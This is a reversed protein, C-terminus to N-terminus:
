CLAAPLRLLLGLSPGVNEGVADYMGLTIGVAVGAVCVSEGVRLLVLNILLSLKGLLAGLPLVGVIPGLSPAGCDGVSDGLGMTIGVAVGVILKSGLLLSCALANCLSKGVIGVRVEVGLMEVCALEDDGVFIGVTLLLGLLPSVCGDLKNDFGITIVVAVGVTPKSGLLLSFGLVKICPLADCVSEGVILM